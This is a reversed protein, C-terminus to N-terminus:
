YLDVPFFVVTKEELEVTKRIKEFSQIELKV